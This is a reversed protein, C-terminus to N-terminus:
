FIFSKRNHLHSTKEYNVQYYYESNLTNCIYFCLKLLLYIFHIEELQTNYYKFFGM